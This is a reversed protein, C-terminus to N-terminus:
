CGHRACPAERPIGEPQPADISSPHPSGGASAEDLRLLQCGIWPMSRPNRTLTRTL